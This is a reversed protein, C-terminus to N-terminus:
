TKQKFSNAYTTGPKIPTGKFYYTNVIKVWGYNIDNICLTFLLNGVSPIFVLYDVFRYMYHIPNSRLLTNVIQM